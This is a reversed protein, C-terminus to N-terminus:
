NEAQPIKLHLAFFSDRCRHRTQPRIFVVCTTTERIYYARGGARSRRDSALVADCLRALGNQRVFSLSTFRTLKSRPTAHPFTDYLPWEANEFSQQRWWEVAEVWRKQASVRWSQQCSTYTLYLAEIVSVNFQKDGAQNVYRTKKCYM